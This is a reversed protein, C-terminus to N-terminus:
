LDGMEIKQKTQEIFYDQTGYREEWAKVGAHIAIRYGGFVHHNACLPFSDFDSSKIGMGAGTKHHCHIDGGCNGDPVVCPLSRVKTPYEKEAKTKKRKM